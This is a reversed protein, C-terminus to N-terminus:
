LQLSRPAGFVGVKLFWFFFVGGLVGVLHVLPIIVGFGLWILLDYTKPKLEEGKGLNKPVEFHPHFTRM